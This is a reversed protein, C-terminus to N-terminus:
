GGLSAQTPIGDQCRESIARHLTIVFPRPDDPMKLLICPGANMAIPGDYDVFWPAEVDVRVLAVAM